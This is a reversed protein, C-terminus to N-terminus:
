SELPMQCTRLDTRLTIYGKGGILCTRACMCVSEGGGVGRKSDKVTLQIKSPFLTTLDVHLVDALSGNQREIPKSWLYM